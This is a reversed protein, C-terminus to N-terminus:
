EEVKAAPVESGCCEQEIAGPVCALTPTAHDVDRRRVVYLLELNLLVCKRRLIAPASSVHDVHHRLGSAATQVPVCVVIQTIRGKVRVVVEVVQITELFRNRMAILKANGQSAGHVNRSDVLLTVLCKEEEVVLAM